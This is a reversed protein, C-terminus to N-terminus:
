NIYILYVCKHGGASPWGIVFIPLIPLSLSVYSLSDMNWWRVCNKKKKKKMRLLYEVKLSFSIYIVCLMQNDSQETSGLRWDKRWRRLIRTLEFFSANKSRRFCQYVGKIVVKRFYDNYLFIKLYFLVKCVKVKLVTFIGVLGFILWVKVKYKVTFIDVLGFILWVVSPELM